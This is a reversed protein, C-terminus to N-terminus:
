DFRLTLILPLESLWRQCAENLENPLKEGWNPMSLWLKQICLRPALMVPAVFGLPDFVKQAASALSNRTYHSNIQIDRKTLSLSDSQNDWTLGLVNVEEDQVAGSNHWQCLEMQADTLIAMARQKLEFFTNMDEVSGVLNDVYFSKKLKEIVTKDTSWHNFHHQLVATLLYPSCNLGFVVRSHRLQKITLQDPHWWLFKLFDRDRENVGIMLFAKKIDASFAIKKERFWLLFSPLSHLLNPDKYLCDNLCCNKGVKCSADFVPRILTSKSDPRYVAHHPIYHACTKETVPSEVIGQEEWQCFVNSYSNYM